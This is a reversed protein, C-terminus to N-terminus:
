RFELEIRGDNFVHAAKIIGQLTAKAKRVDMERFDELFSHVKVPVTAAQAEMDRQAAVSAELEVRRSQLGEQERRRNEQRAIYEAETMVHRDVRDLDNLFAQELEALRGTVRDLEAEDRTDTEQGQAELLARVMDPDSYQGMHELIAEELKQTSHGNAVGCFAKSRLSRSCWYNRYRKGKYAMGVKGTLPGQCHGCRAIGTLLYVSAHAQGRPNERRIALREQLREWEDRSLIPPFFDPVEIIEQQPNGKRARKGYRLIGVVAPNTLIQQITFSAFPKGTRSKLGEANLRDAIAKYGLNEDVALRMMTRVTTAEQPEIEWTVILNGSELSRIPRLGFPPRAAHVGKAVSRAMYARVRESTRRSEAGAIGAKILLILEEQIDEDTAVVTVGHEQLTWIRRLIEKPNRGFRDLFQVVILDAGGESAFEVMSLYERRDDRRGTMIDTYTRVSVAHIRSCYNQFRSEQTELSSHNENAQPKTSVRFYGVARKVGIDTTM